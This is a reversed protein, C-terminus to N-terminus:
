LKLVITVSINKAYINLELRGFLKSLITYSYFKTNYSYIYMNEKM